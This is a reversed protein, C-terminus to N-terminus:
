VSAQKCPVKAKQLAELDKQFISLHKSLFHGRIWQLLAKKYGLSNQGRQLLVFVQCGCNKLGFSFSETPSFFMWHLVSVRLGTTLGTKMALVVSSQLVFFIKFIRNSVQKDPEEIRIAAPLTEFIARTYLKTNGFYVGRFCQTTTGIYCVRQTRPYLWLRTGRHLFPQTGM